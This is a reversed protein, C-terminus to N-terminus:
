MRLHLVDSPGTRLPEYRLIDAAGQEDSKLLASVGGRSVSEVSKAMSQVRFDARM